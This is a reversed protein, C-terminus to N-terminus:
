LGGADVVGTKISYVSQVVSAAVNNGGTSMASIQYLQSNGTSDAPDAGLPTIYFRASAAYAGAQGAAAVTMGPPTYAVGLSAGSSTQWPVAATQPATMANNCVQTTPTTGDATLLGSCTTGASGNGQTLWWEAYQMASQAAHFARQKERTNGAIRESLGFTRFMSVSLLTLVVLILLATVLVIGREKQLSRVQAANPNVIGPKM